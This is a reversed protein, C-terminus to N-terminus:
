AKDEDSSKAVGRIANSAPDVALNGIVKLRNSQQRRGYLLCSINLHAM